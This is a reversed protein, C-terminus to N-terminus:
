AYKGDEPIEVQMNIKPFLKDFIELTKQPGAGKIMDELSMAPASVPSSGANYGLCIMNLAESDFETQAEAKAKAIAQTVNELQDKKLKITFKTSDSTTKVAEDVAEPTGAKLAAILEVVTLKEAKAVWEDVNELTLIPALEKLKTWGLGSVKEWPINKTVLNEYISILYRAKRAQFGFKTHVFADFSESGEFWSQELIKKLVGGLKFDNTGAEEILREAMNLAKTKTLGEIEAAADLLVNGTKQPKTTVAPAAQQTQQTQTAAEM